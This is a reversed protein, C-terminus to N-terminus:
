AASSPLGHHSRGHVEVVEVVVVAAVLMQVAFGGLGAVWTAFVVPGGRTHTRARSLSLSLHLSFSLVQVIIFSM